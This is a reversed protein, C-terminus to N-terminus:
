DHLNFMASFINITLVIGIFVYYRDFSTM